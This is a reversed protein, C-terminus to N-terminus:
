IKLGAALQTHCFNRPLPKWISTKGLLNVILQYFSKKREVSIGATASSQSKM